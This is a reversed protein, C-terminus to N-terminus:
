ALTVRATKVTGDSLKATIVLEGTAEDIHFTIQSNQLKATDPASNPAGIYARGGYEATIYHRLSGNNAYLKLYGCNGSITLMARQAFDMDVVFMGGNRVVIDGGNAMLTRALVDGHPTVASFRAGWFLRGYSVNESKEDFILIAFLGRGVETVGGYMCGGLVTLPSFEIKRWSSGKDGSVYINPKYTTKDRLVTILAGDKAVCIRPASYADIVETPTSWTTLDTSETLMMRKNTDDRFIVRCVGDGCDYFGPEPADYGLANGDVVKISTWTKGYDDSVAIYSNWYTEGEEKGFYPYVLRGDSLEVIRGSEAKYTPPVDVYQQESWTKGQDDSYIYGIGLNTITNYDQICFTVYIRGKSDISITPDRVDYTDHTIIVKEESWTRGLDDSYRYVIVGKDYAHQTGRRYVVHLRTGDFLIDGFANYSAKDTVFYLGCRYSVNLVDAFGDNRYPAAITAENNFTGYILENDKYVEFFLGGDTKTVIIGSGGCLELVRQKAKIFTSEQLEIRGTRGNKAKVVNGEAYIIYDFADPPIQYNKTMEITEGKENLLMIYGKENM